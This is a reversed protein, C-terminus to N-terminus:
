VGTFDGAVLIKGDTQVRINNVINGYILGTFTADLLGTTTTRGIRNRATSGGMTTFAGGVIVAGDSQLALAEVNNNANPNFNADVVSIALNSYTNSPPLLYGFSVLAGDVPNATFQWNGSVLTGTYVATDTGSLSNSGTNMFM